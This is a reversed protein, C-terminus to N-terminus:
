VHARGIKSHQDMSFETEFRNISFGLKDVTSFNNVSIKTILSSYYFNSANLNLHKYDMHNVDFGNIVVPTNAVHYAVSNDILEIHKAAVVWNPKKTLANNALTTSDTLNKKSPANFLITSKSLSVKDMSVTEKQLDISGKNLEFRNVLAALNQKRVSDGYAISSNSIQIKKALIKPLAVKSDKKNPKTTKQLLVNAVLSEINLKDISYISKVIDIEDMKLELKHLNLSANIGAFEDDFYIRINKLGM